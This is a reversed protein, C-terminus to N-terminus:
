KVTGFYEEFFNEPFVETAILHKDGPTAYTKGTDLDVTVNFAEFKCIGDNFVVTAALPDHYTILNCREFWVSAFDMVPKFSHASCKEKAEDPTMTVKTTVDLGVLVTKKVNANLVIHAAHPDCYINWEGHKDNETDIFRGGMIVLEKLLSPIHPYESFLVAINTLPGIPLLTIEGPNAEITNKLFTIAENGPFNSKHEWNGIKSYQRAEAQKQSVILPKEIGPFVPVSKGNHKLIADTIEARKVPEGSVTTIGLLDCDPNNLLYTLCFADDIDSGIDTDLIIKKM